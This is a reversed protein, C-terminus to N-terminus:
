CFRGNEDRERHNGSIKDEFRHLRTHASRTMLALNNESNNTKVGDIHHVIEDSKLKRGIRKEILVVHVSRGKHEGTTYEIYGSPKLSTGKAKGHWRKKASDSMKNKTNQSFPKRDGYYTKKGQKGAM